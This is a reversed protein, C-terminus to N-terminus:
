ADAPRPQPEPQHGDLEDLRDLITIAEARLEGDIAEYDERSLKGTRFDLEADRIEHYKAARAAELELLSAQESGGDGKSPAAATLDINASRRTARLPATVVFIVAGLLALLVIAALLSV